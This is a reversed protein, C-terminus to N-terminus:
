QNPIAYMRVFLTAPRPDPLQIYRETGTWQNGPDRTWPARLNTTWEVNWDYKTVDLGPPYSVSIDIGNTTSLMAIPQPVPITSLPANFTSVLVGGVGLTALVIATTTKANM